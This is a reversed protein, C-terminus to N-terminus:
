RPFFDNMCKRFNQILVPDNRLASLYEKAAKAADKTLQSLCIVIRSDYPMPWPTPTRALTRGVPYSIMEIAPKGKGRQVAVTWTVRKHPPSLGREASTDTVVYPQSLHALKHRMAVYFISLTDRSYTQPFFRGTFRLFEPKRHDRVNGEYLGSLLDVFSICAMLAPFYAHSKNRDATRCIRIDKRLRRLNGAVFESAFNVVQKDTTFPRINSRKRRRDRM